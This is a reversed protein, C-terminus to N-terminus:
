KARLRFNLWTQAVKDSYSIDMEKNNDLYEKTLEKIQRAVARIQYSYDDKHKEYDFKDLNEKINFNVGAISTIVSEIILHRWSPNKQEIKQPAIIKLYSKKLLRSKDSSYDMLHVTEHILGDVAKSSLKKDLNSINLLILNKFEKKVHGGLFNNQHNLCLRVTIEEDNFDAGYFIQISNLIKNFRSFSYNKLMNQWELLKPFEQNWIIEFKDSLNNKINQLIQFEQEDDIPIKSYRSWLWKYTADPKQLLKKFNILSEKEKRNFEGLINKYYDFEKKNFYWNWEVM